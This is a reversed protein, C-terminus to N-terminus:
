STNRILRMLSSWSWPSVFVSATTPPRARVPRITLVAAASSETVKKAKPRDFILKMWNKPIPQPTAITTSAVNTRPTSTGATICSTPSRM